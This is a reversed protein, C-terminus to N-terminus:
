EKEHNARYRRKGDRIHDEGLCTVFPAKDEKESADENDDQSESGVGGVRLTYAQFYRAQPVACVNISGFCISDFFGKHM